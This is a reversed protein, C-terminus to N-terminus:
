SSGAGERAVVEVLEGALAPPVARKFCTLAAFSYAKQLITLANYLTAQQAETQTQIV